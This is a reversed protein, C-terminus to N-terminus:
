AQSFYGRNTIGPDSGLREFINRMGNNGRFNESRSDDRLEENDSKAVLIARSTNGQTSHYESEMRQEEYGENKSLGNVTLLHFSRKSPSKSFEALRNNISLVQVQNPNTERNFQYIEKILLTISIKKPRGDKHVDKELGFDIKPLQDTKKTRNRMKRASNYMWLNGFDENCDFNIRAIKRQEVTPPASRRRLESNKHRVRETDENPGNSTSTRLNNPLATIWVANSQILLSEGNSRISPIISTTSISNLPSLSIKSRFENGFRREQEFREGSRNWEDQFSDNIDGQENFECGSNEELELSAESNHINSQVMQDSRSKNIRNHKRKIREGIQGLISNGRRKLGLVPLNETEEVTERESDEHKLLQMFGIKIFEERKVLKWTELYRITKEGMGMNPQPQLTEEILARPFIEPKYIDEKTRKQIGILQFRGPARVQNDANSTKTRIKTQSLLLIRAQPKIALLQGEEKRRLKPSVLQIEKSNHLLHQRFIQQNQELLGQKGRLQATQLLHQRKVNGNISFTERPAHFVQAAEGAIQKHQIGKPVSFPNTIIGMLDVNLISNQNQNPYPTTQRHINTQTLPVIKQRKSTPQRSRQKTNSQDQIRGPPGPYNMLSFLPGLHSNLVQNNYYWLTQTQNNRQKKQSRQHKRYKYKKNNKDLPRIELYQSEDVFDEQFEDQQEGTGSGFDWGTDIHIANNNQETIRKIEVQRKPDVSLLLLNNVAEEIPIYKSQQVGKIFQHNPDTVFLSQKQSPQQNQRIQILSSSSPSLSLSLQQQQENLSGTESLSTQHTLNLLGPFGEIPQQPNQEAMNNLDDNQGTQQHQLNDPAETQPTHTAGTQTPQQNENNTNGQENMPINERNQQTTQEVEIVEIQQRQENQTNNITVYQQQVQIERNVEHLQNIQQQIQINVQQNLQEQNDQAVLLQRATQFNAIPADREQNISEPYTWSVSSEKDLNPSINNTTRFAKEQATLLNSKYVPAGTVTQVPLLAQERVEERRGRGLDLQDNRDNREKERRHNHDHDHDHDYYHHHNDDEELDMRVTDLYLDTDIERWQANWDNIILYEHIAHIKIFASVNLLDEGFGKHHDGSDKLGLYRITQNRQTLFGRYTNFQQQNMSITLESPNVPTFFVITQQKHARMTGYHNNTKHSREQQPQEQHIQQDDM